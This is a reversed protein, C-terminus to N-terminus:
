DHTSNDGFVHLLAGRELFVRGVNKDRFRCPPARLGRYRGTDPFRTMGQQENEFWQCLRIHRSHKCIIRPRDHAIRSNNRDLLRSPPRPPEASYRDAGIEGFPTERSCDALESAKSGTQGDDPRHIIVATRLSIATQTLLANNPGRYRLAPWM